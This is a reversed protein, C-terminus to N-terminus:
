GERRSIDSCYQLVGARGASADRTAKEASSPRLAHGARAFGDPERAAEALVGYKRHNMQWWKMWATADAGLPEGTRRALEQCIGEFTREPLQGPQPFQELEIKMESALAGVLLPVVEASEVYALSKVVFFRVNSNKSQLLPAAAKLASEDDGLRAFADAFVWSEDDLLAAVAKASSPDKQFM